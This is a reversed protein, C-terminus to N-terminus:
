RRPRRRRDHPPEGACAPISGAVAFLLRPQEHSGRARPSPGGLEDWVDAVREAGGRVRPHVEGIRGRRASPAPEGACAPISRDACGRPRRRAPSGRARPSPGATEREALAFRGAGGRVRPHVGDPRPYRAREVPEGACAPISGCCGRWRWRGRRSGRARPSPGGQGARAAYEWEAGGRVRPHVTTCRLDGLRGVPEGACAPISGDRTRLDLAKGPSGRARPSPGCRAPTRMRGRPAGGRVRPHVRDPPDPWGPLPPEGACAPISGRADARGNRRPRSGRARPSPGLLPPLGDHRQQAGGRVRPHVSSGFAGRCRRAPEGACAPISRRDVHLAVDRVQSGRARPSPGYGVGILRKASGAGGRVRPHVSRLASLCGRRPPSGRARPSPGSRARFRAPVM